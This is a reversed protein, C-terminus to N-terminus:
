VLASASGASQGGVMMKEPNGGFNAVEQQLFTLAQIQDLLGYNDSANQGSDTSVDPHALFGFPGMCYNFTVVAIDKSALHSGDYSSRRSHIYQYNKHRELSQQEETCLQERIDEPVDDHTKLTHGDQAYM